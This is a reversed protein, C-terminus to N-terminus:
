LTKVTFEQLIFLFSNVCKCHAIARLLANGNWFSFSSFLLSLSWLLALVSGLLTFLDQLETDPVQFKLHYRRLLLSLYVWEELSVGPRARANGRPSAGSPAQLREEDWM